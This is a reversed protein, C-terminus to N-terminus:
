RLSLTFIKLRMEQAADLIRRNVSRLLRVEKRLNALGDQDRLARLLGGLRVYGRFAIVYFCKRICRTQSM